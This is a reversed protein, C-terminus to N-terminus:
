KGGDLVHVRRSLAECKEQLQAYKVDLVAFRKECDNAHDTAKQIREEAQARFTEMQEGLTALKADLKEALERYPRQIEDDELRKAEIQSKKDAVRSERQKPKWVAFYYTIATAASGAIGTLVGIIVGVESSIDGLTM